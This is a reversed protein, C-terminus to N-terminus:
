AGAGIEVSVSKGYYESFLNEAVKKADEVARRTENIDTRLKDANHAAREAEAKSSRAYGLETEAADMERYLEPKANEMDIYSKVMLHVDSDLLYDAAVSVSGANKVDIKGSDINTKLEKVMERFEAYGAEDAINGVPDNVFAYLQKKRASIHDYKKSARELPAVLGRIRNYLDSAQADIKAKENKKAQLRAKIEEENSTVPAQRQPENRSELLRLRYANSELASIHKKVENYEGLERGKADLEKQMAAMLREIDSTCRKFNGLHNAYCHIITRYRANTKLIETNTSRANDLIRTYREYTNPADDASLRMEMVVKRLTKAYVGKQSKIDSVNPNWIDETDPEAGLGYFLDCAEGFREKARVLDRVIGSGKAELSALKRDFLADLKTGLAGIPM